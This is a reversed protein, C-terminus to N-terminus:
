LKKNKLKEKDREAKNREMHEHYIALKCNNCLLNHKTKIVQGCRSCFHTSM